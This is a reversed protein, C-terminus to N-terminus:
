AGGAMVGVMRGPDDPNTTATPPETGEGSDQLAEGEYGEPFALKLQINQRLGSVLTQDTSGAM